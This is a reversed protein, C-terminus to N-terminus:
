TCECFLNMGWWRSASERSTTGLLEHSLCLIYYLQWTIRNIPLIWGWHINEMSLVLSVIVLYHLKGKHLFFSFTSFVYRLVWLSLLTCIMKFVNTAAVERTVIPLHHSQWQLEQSDGLNMPPFVEDEQMGPVRWFWMAETFCGAFNGSWMM